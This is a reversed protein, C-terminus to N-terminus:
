DRETAPRYDAGLGYISNVVVAEFSNQLFFILLTSHSVRLKEICATLSDSKRFEQMSYCEEIEKMIIYGFKVMFLAYRPYTRKGYQCYFLFALYVPGFGRTCIGSERLHM